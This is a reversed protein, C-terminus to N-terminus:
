MNNLIYLYDSLLVRQWLLSVLAHNNYLKKINQKLKVLLFPTSFKYIICMYIHILNVKKKNNNQIKHKARHMYRPYNQKPLYDRNNFYYILKVLLICDNM